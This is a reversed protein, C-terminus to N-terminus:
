RGIAERDIRAHGHPVSDPNGPLRAVRRRKSEVYESEHEVPKRAFAHIEHCLCLPSIEELIKGLLGPLYGMGMLHSHGRHYQVLPEFGHKKLVRLAARKTNCPYTTPFVDEEEHLDGLYQRLKYHFRYPILSAGLSSYHFRNPTRFCFYGGPKLIRFIEGFTKGPDTLHEVVWDSHCIDVSGTALPINGDTIRHFEDLSRNDLGDDGIDVGIVKSAKGKFTCLKRYFGPSKLFHAGRGCGYDLVVSEATILANVRSYYVLTGDHRAIGGIASEPYLRRKVSYSM